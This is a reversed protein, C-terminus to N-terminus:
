GAEERQYERGGPLGARHERERQQALLLADRVYLLAAADTETIGEDDQHRAAFARLREQARIFTACADESIAM